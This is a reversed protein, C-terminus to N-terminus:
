ILGIKSGILRVVADDIATLNSDCWITGPRQRLWTLQRKALQRTAACAQARMQEQTIEGRLYMAMQRYGVTRLAPLSDISGQTKNLLHQVEQELGQELMQGFRQEIRSHLVSRDDPALALTFFKWDQLGNAELRAVPRGTLANIELAREIRQADNKNIRAASAPDLQELRRHLSPWGIHEAQARLGERFSRDASPLPNLGASLAQFYFMSGGVILPTAARTRIEHMVSVADTRFDAASYTETPERLNILHHPARALTDRDPKATGIDMGIYVQSADVSVIELPYHDVLSVAIDTKGSATPGLLAIATSQVPKDAGAPAAPAAAVM